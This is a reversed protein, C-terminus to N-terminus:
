PDWINPMQPSDSHAAALVRALAAQLCDSVPPGSLSFCHVEARALSISPQFFAASNLYGNSSVFRGNEPMSSLWQFLPSQGHM